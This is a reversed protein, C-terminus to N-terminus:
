EADEIAALKPAGLGVPIKVRTVIREIVNDITEERLLADPTLLLRHALVPKALVKVDNPLVDDRGQSAALVRAARLMALSARASAGDQIAPDNRTAHVLDVIYLAVAESVTVDEAWDIM